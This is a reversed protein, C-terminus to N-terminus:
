PLKLVSGPLVGYVEDGKRRQMMYLGTLVGFAPLILTQEHRYFCPLTLHQRSGTDVQVGPHIHGCLNIKGEPVHSLPHHSCIFQEDTVSDVVSICLGTFLKEDILDHNGKVLTFSISPFDSVLTCFSHWDTNITSHFLDGLFYVIEPRIKEFLLALRQYDKEQVTAPLAIGEKRFHAAKGLHVDAIILAKKAPDYIAKETLLELTRKNLEIKM